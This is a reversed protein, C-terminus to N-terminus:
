LLKLVGIFSGILCLLALWYVSALLGLGKAWLPLNMFTAELMTSGVWSQATQMDRPVRRAVTKTSDMESGVNFLRVVHGQHIVMPENTFHFVTRPPNVM